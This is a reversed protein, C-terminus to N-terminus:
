EKVRVIGEKVLQELIDVVFNYDLDLEDAIESPYATGKKRLYEIIRSRASKM